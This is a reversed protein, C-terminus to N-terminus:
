AEDTTADADKIAEILEQRLRGIDDANSDGPVDISDRHAENHWYEFANTVLANLDALRVKKGCGRRNPGRGLCPLLHV